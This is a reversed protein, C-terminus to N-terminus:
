FLKWLFSKATEKLFMKDGQFRWLGCKQQTKGYYEQKIGTANNNLDCQLFLENKIVNTEKHFLATTKGKELGKRNYIYYVMAKSLLQKHGAVGVGQIYYIQIQFM